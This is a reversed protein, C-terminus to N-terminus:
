FCTIQEPLSRVPYLLVIAKSEERGSRCPRKLSTGADLSQARIIICFTFAVSCNIEVSCHTDSTHCSFSEIPEMPIGTENIDTSHISRTNRMRTIQLTYNTDITRNHEWHCTINVRQIFVCSLQQPPNSLDLSISVSSIYGWLLYNWINISLQYMTIM